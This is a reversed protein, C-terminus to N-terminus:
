FCSSFLHKKGLATCRLHNSKRGMPVAALMLSNFDRETLICPKLVEPSFSYLSGYTGCGEM